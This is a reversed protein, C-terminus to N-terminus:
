QGKSQELYFSVKELLVKPSVPKELFDDVPMKDSKGFEFGLAKSVSTLLIIPTKLGKQKFKHALYFGDDPEILMVDLLILDPKETDVLNIADDVNAATVIAYGKSELLMTTAEVIDPDDDIIAIKLM